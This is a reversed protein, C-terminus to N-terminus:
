LKQKSHILKETKRKKAGPEEELIAVIIENFVLYDMLINNTLNIVLQDYLDSLSQLLLEACKTTEITYGMLTLQSFLTNLTNIHDTVSKSEAM